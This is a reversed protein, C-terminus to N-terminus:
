AMIHISYVQRWGYGVTQGNFWHIAIGSRSRYCVYGDLNDSIRTIRQGVRLAKAQNITM